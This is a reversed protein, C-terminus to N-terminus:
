KVVLYYFIFEDEKTLHIEIKRNSFFAPYKAAKGRFRLGSNKKYQYIKRLDGSVTIHCPDDRRSLGTDELDASKKAVNNLYIELAEESRSIIAYDDFFSLYYQYRGTFFENGFINSLLDSNKIAFFREKVFINPYNRLGKEFDGKQNVKLCYVKSIDEKVANKFYVVHLENKIHDLFLDKIVPINKQSYSEDARKRESIEKLDIVRSRRLVTETPFLKSRLLSIPKLTGLSASFDHMADNSLYYGLFCIEGASFSVDSSTWGEVGVDPVTTDQIPVDSKEVYYFLTALAKKGATDFIRAFQPDNKISTGKAWGSIVEEILKGNFSGIFIGGKFVCSFFRNDALAYHLIEMGEYNQVVPPFPPFIENEMMDKWVSIEGSRVRSYYVEGKDHFSIVIGGKGWGPFTKQESKLPLIFRFLSKTWDFMKENPFDKLVNEDLQRSFLDLNNVQLISKTNEPILSFIDFQYTKQNQKMSSYFYSYFYIGICGVIIVVITWFILKIYLKM